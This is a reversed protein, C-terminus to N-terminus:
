CKSNFFAEGMNCLLSIANSVFRKAASLQIKLQRKRQLQRTTKFEKRHLVSPKSFRGFQCPDLSM